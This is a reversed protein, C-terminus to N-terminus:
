NDGHLVVHRWCFLSPWVLVPRKLVRRTILESLVGSCMSGGNAFVCTGKSKCTKLRLTLAHIIFVSPLLGDDRFVRSSCCRAYWGDL